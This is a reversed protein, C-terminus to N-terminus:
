DFLCCCVPGTPKDFLCLGVMASPDTSKHCHTDCDRDNTCTGRLRCPGDIIEKESQVTIVLSFIVFLAVLQFRSSAM